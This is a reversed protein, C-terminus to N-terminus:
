KPITVFKISSIRKVPQKKKFRAAKKVFLTFKGTKARAEVERDLVLLKPGADKQMSISTYVLAGSAIFLLVLFPKM